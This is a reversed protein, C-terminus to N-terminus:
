ELSIFEDGKQYSVYSLILQFMEDTTKMSGEREAIVRPPSFPNNPNSARNDFDGEVYITSGRPIKLMTKPMYFYQWRFDWDNIRILRITDGSPKIAYAWFRKGILHMHPVINVISIDSPVNFKIHFTKMENAPVVLAPEVPALGLTGIQFEKVPRKPEKTGYYIKYYSSDKQEIASPGFHMDNLYFANKKGIRFGGIEDPYFSFQAGPLYNSVSPTMPAYSGDDNLLGLEKHIQTSKTQDQNVLYKGEHLSRKKNPEFQVIHTNVHHVLRKNGPVFEIARIITDKPLEFPVKVVLFLDSNNGPVKIPEPIKVILDPKTKSWTKEVIEPQVLAATDGALCGEESWRKILMIQEDTLYTENAFHTYSPDAPWPPMLRKETVYAILKAKPAIDDYSVLSFPAAGNPNHCKTCNQHIIPAIHEAFLVQEASSVTSNPESCSVALFIGLLLIQILKHLM